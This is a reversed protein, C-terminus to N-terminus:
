KKTYTVGGIKIYDKGQEFSQEGELEELLERMWDDAKEEDEESVFDLHIEDEEIRYTADFSLDDGLISDFTITMQNGNFKLTTDGLLGDKEYEGSLGGGCSALMSCLMIAVLALALIKVSKKM